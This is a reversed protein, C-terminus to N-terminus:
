SLVLTYFINSRTVSVFHIKGLSKFFFNELMDINKLSWVLKLATKYIFGLLLFLSKSGM